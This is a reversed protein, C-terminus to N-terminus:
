PTFGLTLPSTNDLSNGNARVQSSIESVTANTGDTYVYVSDPPGSRKLVATLAHWEGDNISPVFALGAISSNFGWYNGELFFNWGAVTFGEVRKAFFRPYSYNSNAVNYKLFLTMTWDSGMGM